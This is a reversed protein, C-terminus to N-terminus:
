GCPVVAEIAVSDPSTELWVSGNLAVFRDHARTVIDSGAAPELGTGVLRIRLFDVSDILTVVLIPTGARQREATHITDAVLHCKSRM